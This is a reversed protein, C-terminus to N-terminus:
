LSWQTQILSFAELNVLYLRILLPVLSFHGTPRIAMAEVVGYEKRGDGDWDWGNFFEALDRVQDWTRPAGLEYGYKDKFERQYDPNELADRRYYFIHNDGDLPIAYIFQYSIM